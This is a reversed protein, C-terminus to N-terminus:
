EQTDGTQPQAFVDEQWPLLAIGNNTTAVLVCRGTAKHRFVYLMVLPEGAPRHYVADVIEFAPPTDADVPIDEARHGRAILLVGIVVGVIGCLIVVVRVATAIAASKIRM